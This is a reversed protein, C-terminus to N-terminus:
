RMSASLAMKARLLRSKAAAVSIGLAAAIESTSYDGTRRLIFPKGFLRGSVAFQTEFINSRKGNHTPRSLPEGSLAAALSSPSQPLQVFSSLVM